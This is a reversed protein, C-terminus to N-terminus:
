PVGAAHRDAEGDRLTHGHSSVGWQGTGPVSSCTLARHVNSKPQPDPHPTM